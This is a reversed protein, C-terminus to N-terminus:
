SQGSIACNSSPQVLPISCQVSRVSRLGAVAAALRPDDACAVISGGRESTARALTALEHEMTDLFELDNSFSPAIPMLVLVDPTVSRLERM